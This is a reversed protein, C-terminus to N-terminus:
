EFSFILLTKQVFFSLSVSLSLSLDTVPNNKTKKQWSYISCNLFFSFLKPANKMPRFLMMIAASGHKLDIFASCLDLPHNNRSLHQGFGLLSDSFPFRCSFRWLVSHYLLAWVQSGYFDQLKLNESYRTATNSCLPVVRTLIVRLFFKLLTTKYSTHDM